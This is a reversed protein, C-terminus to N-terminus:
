EHYEAVKSSEITQKSDLPKAMEFHNYADVRNIQTPSDDVEQPMDDDMSNDRQEASLLEQVASREGFSKSRSRGRKKPELNLYKSDKNLHKAYDTEQLHPLKSSLNMVKNNPDSKQKKKM